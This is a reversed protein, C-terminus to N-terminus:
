RAVEVGDVVDNVCNEVEQAICDIREMLRRVAAREPTMGAAESEVTATEPDDVTAEWLTTSLSRLAGEISRLAPVTDDEPEPEEDDVEVEPTPPQCIDAAWDDFAQDAGPGNPHAPYEGHEACYDRAFAVRAVSKRLDAYRASWWQNLARAQDLRVRPPEYCDSCLYEDSGDPRINGLHEGERVHVGCSECPHYEEGDEEDERLHVRVAEMACDACLVRTIGHDHDVVDFGYISSAGCQNCSTPPGDKRRTATVPLPHTPSNTTTEM